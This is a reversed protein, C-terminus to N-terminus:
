PNFWVEGDVGFRMRFRKWDTYMHVAQRGNKGETVSISISSDKKLVAEGSEDPQPLDGDTKMPILFKATLMERELFGVYLTYITKEDETELKPMQGMLLLWRVLDPNTVPVDQPKLQSYDPPAVLEAASIITQESLVAVGCAGNLYFTSGLFNYIGKGDEGKEIKKVEMTETTYYSSMVSQYADTFIMISPPACMYNEEQQVTKSFLHPEGTKKNFVCYIEDAALIKQCLAKVIVALKRGKEQKQEESDASATQSRFWGYLRWLEACDTISLEQIEEGTLELKKGQIYGDGLANIYAGHVDKGSAERAHIVTGIKIGLKKGNEIRLAIHCNEAHTVSHNPGQEMAVITSLSISGKDDGLNTIYVAAGTSVTGNLKGVVVLDESNILSFTDTVGLAFSDFIGM